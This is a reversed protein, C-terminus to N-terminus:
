AWIALLAMFGGGAALSFLKRRLLYWPRVTATVGFEEPLFDVFGIHVLSGAALANLVGLTWQRQESEVDESDSFRLGILAGIPFSCTFVAILM